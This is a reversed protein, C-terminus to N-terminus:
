ARRRAVSCCRWFAAGFAVQALFLARFADDAALGISRAAAFVLQLLELGVETGLMIAISPLAALMPVREADRVIAVCLLVTLGGTGLGTLVATGMFYAPNTSWPYGAYGVLGALTLLGFGVFLSPAVAQARQVLLGAALMGLIQSAASLTARDAVFAASFRHEFLYAAEFFGTTPMELAFLAALLWYTSPTTGTPRQARLARRALWAFAAALAVLAAISTPALYGDVSGLTSWLEFAIVATVFALLLRRPFVDGPRAAEHLSPLVYGVLALLGVLALPLTAFALFYASLGLAPLLWKALQPAILFGTPTAATWLTTLVKRGAPLPWQTVLSQSAPALCALAAAGLTLCVYAAIERQWPLPHMLELSAFAAFAVSATVSAVLALTRVALRHLLLPYIALAVVMGAVIAEMLLAVHEVAIGLFAAFQAESVLVTSTVIAKQGNGLLAIGGLVVLAAAGRGAPRASTTM